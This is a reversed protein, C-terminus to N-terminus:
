KAPAPSTPAELMLSERVRQITRAAGPIRDAEDLLRRAEDRRGTAALARAEFITGLIPDGGRLRFRRFAAAAARPDDRLFALRGEFYARPPPDAPGLNALSSEAAALDRAAIAFGIEALRTTLCDPCREKQLKLEYRAQPITELSLDALELVKEPDLRRFGHRRQHETKDTRVYLRAQDDFYVLRWTSRDRAMLKSFPDDASVFAWTVGTEDAVTRLAAPSRAAEIYRRAFSEPYLSWARQDIFLRAEPLCYMLYGGFDYWNFVRGRMQEARAFACAAEPYARPEPGTGLRTHIRHRAFLLGVGTLATLACLAGALRRVRRGADFAQLPRRAIAVLNGAVLPAAVLLAQVAFRIHRVSLYGLIAVFLARWPSTARGAAITTGAVAVGAAILPVDRGDIARWEVIHLFTPAIVRFALAAHWTEPNFCSVVFAAVPFALTEILVARPRPRPMRLVRILRTTAYLGIAALAIVVSGHLNVWLLVIALAVVLAVRRGSREHWGLAAMLGALCVLAFMEPRLMLRPLVAGLIFILLACSAVVPLGRRTMERLTLAWAAALCLGRLIYAAPWGGAGFVAALIVDALWASVFMRQGGFTHSFTDIRYISGTDLMTAGLVVHWHFDGSADRVFGVAFALAVTAGIALLSSLRVSPPM